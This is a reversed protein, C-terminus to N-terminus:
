VKGEDIVELKEVKMQLEVIKGLLFITKSDEDNCKNYEKILDIMKYVVPYWERKETESFDTKNKLTALLRLPVELM